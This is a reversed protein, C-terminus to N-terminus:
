PGPTGIILADGNAAQAVRESARALVGALLAAAGALIGRRALGTGARKSEPHTQPESM